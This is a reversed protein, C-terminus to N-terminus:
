RLCEGYYYEIFIKDDNGLPIYNLVNIQRYSKFIDSYYQDSIENNRKQINFADNFVLEGALTKTATSLLICKDNAIVQKLFEKMEEKKIKGNDFLIYADLVLM